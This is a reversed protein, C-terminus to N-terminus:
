GYIRALKSGDKLIKFSLGDIEIRHAISGSTQSVQANSSGQSAHLGELYRRMRERERQDNMLAKRHQSSEIAQRRQQMVKDLVSSNILQKHRGRKSVYAAAPQLVEDENLAAPASTSKASPLQSSGKNLVLSHNTPYRRSAGRGRARYPAPRPSRWTGHGRPAYQGPAATTAQHRATPQAPSPQSKHLNIHGALQGIRALLEQDESM